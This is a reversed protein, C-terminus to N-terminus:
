SLRGLSRLALEDLVRQELRAQHQALAQARQERLRELAKLNQQHKQWREMFAKETRQAQDCAEHQQSIALQLREVFHKRNILEGVRAVAVTGAAYQALYNKLELLQRDAVRVAERSKLWQTKANKETQQAHRLM